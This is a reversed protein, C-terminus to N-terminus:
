RSEVALRLGLGIMVSATLRELRAPWPSKVFRGKVRTVALALTSYWVLDLAVILVSMALAMPLVSDGSPIFQPFLAIFFIALKPNALATVVGERFPGGLRFGREPV